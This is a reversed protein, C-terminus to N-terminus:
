LALIVLFKFDSISRLVNMGRKFQNCLLSWYALFAILDLHINEPSHLSFISPMVFLIWNFIYKGDASGFFQSINIILLPKKLPDWSKSDFQVHFQLRTQNELWLFNYNNFM